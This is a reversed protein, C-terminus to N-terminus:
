GAKRPVQLRPQANLKERLTKIEAIMEPIKALLRTAAESDNEPRKAIQGDKKTIEKNRRLTGLVAIGEPGIRLNKGSDNKAVDGELEDLIDKNDDM